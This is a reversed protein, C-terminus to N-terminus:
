KRTLDKLLQELHATFSIIHLGITTQVVPDEKVEGFLNKNILKALAWDPGLTQEAKMAEAYNSYREDISTKCSAFDDGDGYIHRHFIELYENRKDEKKFIKDCTLVILWMGVYFLEDRIRQYDEDNNIPLGVTKAITKIPNLQFFIMVIILSFINRIYGM